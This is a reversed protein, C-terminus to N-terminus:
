IVSNTTTTVTCTKWTSATWNKHRLITFRQTDYLSTESNTEQRIKHSPTLSDDAPIRMRRSLFLSLSTGKPATSSGRPIKASKQIHTIRTTRPAADAAAVSFLVPVFTLMNICCDQRARFRYLSTSHIQQGPQTTGRSHQPLSLSPLSSRKKQLGDPCYTRPRTSISSRTFIPAVLFDVQADVTDHRVEQAGKSVSPLSTSYM